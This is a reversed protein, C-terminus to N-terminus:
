GPLDDVIADVLGWALATLASIRRGSLLMLATRQRGIRRSISVCGGAGPIIGMALEPLHFWADSRAVVRHAWAALELGAGVCAGHLRAELRDACGVAMRSPLTRARIAHATAPDTTTGFEALDAGLSFCRGAGRLVVRGITRDLVALSLAVGLGDRMERDIANGALPRDLIIELLDDDRNMAIRGEPQPAAAPRAALWRRHDASGQLTAYALSEADLAALDSLQPVMRLLQVAVAAAEPHACVQRELAGLGIPPEIVADCHRTAPHDRRGLGILPCAPLVPEEPWDGGDLDVVALPGDWPSEGPHLRQPAILFASEAM